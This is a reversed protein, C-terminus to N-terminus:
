NIVREKQGITPWHSHKAEMDARQCPQRHATTPTISPRVAHGAHEERAKAPRLSEVAKVEEKAQVKQDVRPDVKQSALARPSAARARARVKATAALKESARVNRRHTDSDEVITATGRSSTSSTTSRRRPRMRLSRGMHTPEAAAPASETQQRRQRLPNKGHAHSATRM